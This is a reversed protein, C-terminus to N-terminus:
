GDLSSLDSGLARTELQTSAYRMKMVHGSSASTWGDHSLNWHVVHAGGTGLGLDVATTNVIVFDGLQVPGVLDEIAYAPQDHDVLVRQLGDREEVIETVTGTRFSPM